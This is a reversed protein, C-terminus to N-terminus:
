SEPSSRVGPRRFRISAALFQGDLPCLLFKIEAGAAAAAAPKAIWGHPRFVEEQNQDAHYRGTHQQYQQSRGALLIVRDLVNHRLRVLLQAVQLFVHDAVAALLVRLHVRLVQGQEPEGLRQVVARPVVERDYRVGQGALHGRGDQVCLVDRGLQWVLLQQDVVQPQGLDVQVRQLGEAVARAASHYAKAIPEGRQRRVHGVLVHVREPWDHDVVREGPGAGDEEGLVADPQPAGALIHGIHSGLSLVAGTAHHAPRGLLRDGTPRM